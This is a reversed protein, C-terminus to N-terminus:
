FQPLAMVMPACSIRTPSSNRPYAFILRRDLAENPGLEPERPVLISGFDDADVLTPVFRQDGADLDCRDFNFKRAVHQLNHLTVYVSIFRQGKAPKYATNQETYSNPGDTVKRVTVVWDDGRLKTPKDIITHGCSALALAALGAFV